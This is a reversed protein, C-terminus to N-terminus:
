GASTAGFRGASQRLQEEVTERRARVEALEGADGQQEVYDEYSRLASLQNVLDGMASYAELASEFVECAQEHLPGVFEEDANLARTGLVCGRVSMALAVQFRAGSAEAVEVARASDLDATELADRQLSISARVRYVGSLNVPDQSRKASDLTEVVVAAADQWRGVAILGEAQRVQLATVTLADGVETALKMAKSWSSLAHNHRGSAIQVDGLAKFANAMGWPDVIQESIQAAEEAADLAEEFHGRRLQIMAIHCLSRAVVRRDQARRRLALAKLFYALAQRYADAEGRVVHVLGMEDMVDAIWKHAGVIRLKKLAQHLMQTAADYRGTLRAVQGLRLRLHGARRADDLCDALRLGRLFAAEAVKHDGQHLASDGHQLCLAAAVDADRFDVLSAGEAYLATARHLHGIHLAADGAEGYAVAALRPRGGAQYLRAVHTADLVPNVRPRASLWQAALGSLRQAESEPMSRVLLRADRPYAFNFELEKSLRGEATFSVLELDQLRLLAQKLGVRDLTVTAESDLGSLARYISLIGGFWFTSGFTAAVKLVGLLEPSLQTLRLPLSTEGDVDTSPVGADTNLWRWQQGQAEVVGSVVLGRILDVLREPNGRARESFDREVGEPLESVDRLLQKALHRMREQTLPLLNVAYSALPEPAPVRSEVLCAAGVGDLAVMMEQIFRSVDEVSGRTADVCLVLPSQRCRTRLLSAAVNFQAREREKPDKVIPALKDNNPPVLGIIRGVSAMCDVAYREGVLDTVQKLAEGWPDASRMLGDGGLVEHLVKGLFQSPGRDNPATSVEHWMVGRRQPAVARRLERFLRSKGIGAPGHLWMVQFKSGNLADRLRGYVMEMETRRGVFPVKKGFLTSAKRPSQRFQM